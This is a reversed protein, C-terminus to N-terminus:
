YDLYNNLDASSDELHVYKYVKGAPGSQDATTEEQSEPESAPIEYSRNGVVATFSSIDEDKSFYYEPAKPVPEKETNKNRMTLLIVAQASGVIVLMLGATLLVLVRKNKPLLRKKGSKPPKAKKVKAAKPKKQKMKPNKIKPDKINTKKTPM